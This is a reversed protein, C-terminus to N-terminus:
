MEKAAFPGKDRSCASFANVMIIFPSAVSACIPPKNIASRVRPSVTSSYAAAAFTIREFHRFTDAGIPAISITPVPPSPLDVRFIEVAVAITVAPAPTITALCPFRFKDDLDPAESANLWLPTFMITSGSTTSRAIFSIPMPKIIAGICWGATFYTIGALNSKPVLVINLIKPGSVFGAPTFLCNVPANLREIILGIASTNFSNPDSFAQNTWPDSPVSSIDIAPTDQITSNFKPLILSNSILGSSAPKGICENSLM